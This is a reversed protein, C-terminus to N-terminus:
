VIGVIAEETKTDEKLPHSPIPLLRKLVLPPFFSANNPRQAVLVDDDDERDDNEPALLRRNESVVVVFHTNAFSLSMEFLLVGPFFLFCCVTTIFNPPEETASASRILSTALMTRDNGSSIGTKTKLAIPFDVFLKSM